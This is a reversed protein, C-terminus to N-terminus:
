GKESIWLYGHQIMDWYLINEIDWTQIIMGHKWLGDEVNTNAVISITLAEEQAERTFGGLSVVIGARARKKIVVGALQRVVEVSVPSEQSKCEVLVRGKLGLPSEILSRAMTLSEDLLLDFGGDRTEQTRDVYYDMREFVQAMAEEFENAQGILQVWKDSLSHIIANKVKKELENLGTKLAEHRAEEVWEEYTEPDDIVDWYEEEFKENVAHAAAEPSLGQLLKIAFLQM